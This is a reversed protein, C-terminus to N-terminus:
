CLLLYKQLITQLYFPTLNPAHSKIYTKTCTFNIIHLLKVTCYGGTVM